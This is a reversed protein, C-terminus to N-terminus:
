AAPQNTNVGSKEEAHILRSEAQDQLLSSFDNARISSQFAVISSLCCTACMLHACLPKQVAPEAAVSHFLQQGHLHVEVESFPWYPLHASSTRGSQLPVTAAPPSQLKTDRSAHKHQAIALVIVAVGLAIVAVFLRNLRKQMQVCEDVWLNLNKTHRNLRDIDESHRLMSNIMDERNTTWAWDHLKRLLNKM